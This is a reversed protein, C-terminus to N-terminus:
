LNHDQEFKKFLEDKKTKLEEKTLNNSKYKEDLEALAM